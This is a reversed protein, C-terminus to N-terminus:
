AAPETVKRMKISHRARKKTLPNECSHELRFCPHEPFANEEDSLEEDTHWLYVIVGGIKLMKAAFTLLKDYLLRTDFRETQHFHAKM